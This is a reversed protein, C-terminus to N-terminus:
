SRIEGLNGVCEQVIGVTVTMSSRRIGLKLWSSCKFYKKIKVM